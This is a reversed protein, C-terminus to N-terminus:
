NSPPANWNPQHKGVLIMGIAYLLLIINLVHAFLHKRLAKLFCFGFNRVDKTFFPLQSSVWKPCSFMMITYWTSQFARFQRMVMALFQFCWISDLCISWTPKDIDWISGCSSERKKEWLIYEMMGALNHLCVFSM